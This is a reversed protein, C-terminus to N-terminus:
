GTPQEEAVTVLCHLAVFLRSMTCSTASHGMFAIFALPLRYVPVHVYHVGYAASLTQSLVICVERFHYSVLDIYVSKTHIVKLSVEPM